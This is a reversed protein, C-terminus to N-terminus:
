SRALHDYIYILFTDLLVTVVAGVLLQAMPFLVFVKDAGDYVGAFVTAVLSWLLYALAAMTVAILPNKALLRASRRIAAVPSLSEFVLAYDAYLFVVNAALLAISVPLLATSDSELGAPLLYFLADIVLYLLALRYVERWARPSLPYDRGVIARFFTARITAALVVATLGALAAALLPLPGAVLQDQNDRLYAWPAFNAEAFSGWSLHGGMAAYVAFFALSNMLGLVFPYVFLLQKHLM